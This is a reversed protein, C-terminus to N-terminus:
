KVEIIELETRRNKARGELTKNDEVPKTSGFGRYLLMNRDVGQSVLYSMVSKARKSSLNMLFAPDTGQVGNDTHGNISILCNKHVQLFPVIANLAIKSSDKLVDSNPEFYINPLTIKAGKELKELVIVYEKSACSFQKWVPFYGNLQLKIEITSNPKFLVSIKGEKDTQYRNENVTVQTDCIKNQNKDTLVLNIMCQQENENKKIEFLNEVKKDEFSLIKSFPVYKQTPLMSSKIVCIRDIYANYQEGEVVKGEEVYRWSKPYTTMFPVAALTRSMSEEYLPERTLKKHVIAVYDPNLKLFDDITKLKPINFFATEKGYFFTICKRRTSDLPYLTVYHKMLTDKKSLSTNDPFSFIDCVPEYNKKVAHILYRSASIVKTFSDTSGNSYFPEESVGKYVKVEAFEREKDSKRKSSRVVVSLTKQFDFVRVSLDFPKDKENKSSCERDKRSVCVDDIYYYCKSNHYSLVTDKVKTLLTNSQDDFNGIVFSKEGGSATYHHEFKQWGDTATFFQNKSNRVQPNVYIVGDYYSEGYSFKEETSFYVGVNSTAFVSNKALNLYFSVIYTKGKELPESLNGRIYERYNYTSLTYAYFGGCSYGTRPAINNSGFQSFKVRHQNNHHDCTGYPTASDWFPVEALKLYPINSYKRTDEDTIFHKFDEFGPNLVLNQTYAFISFGFYLFFAVTRLLCSRKMGLTRLFSPLKWVINRDVTSYARSKCNSDMCGTQVDTQQTGTFCFSVKQPFLSKCYFYM